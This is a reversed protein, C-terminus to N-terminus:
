ARLVSTVFNIREQLNYHNQNKATKSFFLMSYSEVLIVSQAGTNMQQLTSKWKEHIAHTSVRPSIGQASSALFALCTAYLKSQFWISILPNGSILCQLEKKWQIKLVRQYVAM